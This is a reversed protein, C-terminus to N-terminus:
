ILAASIFAYPAGVHARGQRSLRSNGAAPTGDAQKVVAGNQSRNRWILGIFRRSFVSGRDATALKKLAHINFGGGNQAAAMPAARSSLPIMVVAVAIETTRHTLRGPTIAPNAPLVLIVTGTVPLVPTVTRVLESPHVARCAPNRTSRRLEAPDAPDAKGERAITDQIAQRDACGQM